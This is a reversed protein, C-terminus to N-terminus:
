AHQYRERGDLLQVGAALPQGESDFYCGKGVLLPQPVAGGVESAGHESTREVGGQEFALVLSPRGQGVGHLLEPSIRHPKGDSPLVSVEEPVALDM